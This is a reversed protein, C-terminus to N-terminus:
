EILSGYGSDFRQYDPNILPAERLFLDYESQTLELNCKSCKYIESYSQSYRKISFLSPDILGLGGNENFIDDRKNFSRSHCRPCRIGGASYLVSDQIFYVDKVPQNIKKLLEEVLAKKFELETYTKKPKSSLIREKGLLSKTLDSIKPWIFSMKKVIDEKDVIIKEESVYGHVLSNRVKYIDRIAIVEEDLLVKKFLIKFRAMASYINITEISDEKQLAIASIADDSKLNSADFILVPNKKHLKMKLVREVVICFSVIVEQLDEPKQTSDSLYKNVRSYLQLLYDYKKVKKTMGLCKVGIGRYKMAFTSLRTVDLLLM